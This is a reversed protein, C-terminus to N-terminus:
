KIGGITNTERVWKVFNSVYPEKMKKQLRKVWNVMWDKDVYDCCNYISSYEEDYEPHNIDNRCVGSNNCIECYNSNPVSHNMVGKNLSKEEIFGKKDINNKSTKGM